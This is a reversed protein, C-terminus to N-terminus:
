HGEQWISVGHFLFVMLKKACPFLFNDGAHNLCVNFKFPIPISSGPFILLPQEKSKSLVKGFHVTEPFSPRPRCSQARCKKTPSVVCRHLHAKTATVTVTIIYLPLKRAIDNHKITSDYSLM